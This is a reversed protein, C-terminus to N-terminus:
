LARRTDRMARRKAAYPAVFLYLGTPLLLVLPALALFGIWFTKTRLNEVFERMAVLMTKGM